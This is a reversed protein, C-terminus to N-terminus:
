FLHGELKEGNLLRRAEDLRRRWEKREYQDGSTSQLHSCVQQFSAALSYILQKEEENLALRPEDQAHSEALISFMKSIQLGSALDGAPSPGRSPTRTAQTPSAHFSVHSGLTPSGSAKGLNMASDSRSSTQGNLTGYRPTVSPLTPLIHQSFQDMQENEEEEDSFDEAATAFSAMTSVSDMSSNRQHYSARKASTDGDATLFPRTTAVSDASSSSSRRSASSYTGMASHLFFNEYDFADLRDEHREAVPMEYVADEYVSNGAAEYEDGYSSVFDSDDEVEEECTDEADAEPEVLQSDHADDYRNTPYDPSLPSKLPESTPPTPLFGKTQDPSVQVPAVQPAVAEIEDDEYLAQRTPSETKTGVGANATVPSVGSKYGETDAYWTEASTFPSPTRLTQMSRRRLNDEKARQKLSSIRGKLDMMQDRLDSAASASRHLVPSDDDDEPLTELANPPSRSGRSHNRLSTDRTDNKQDWNNAKPERMVEVSRSERIPFRGQGYGEPSWPGSATGMASTARKTSMSRNMRTLSFGQASTESLGRSHSPSLPSSYFPRIRPAIPGIGAYLRRDRDRLASLPIPLEPAGKPTHNFSPSIVLSQRAGRLNGEMVNLRKKANALIIEARRSLASSTYEDDDADSQGDMWQDNDADGDGRVDVPLDNQEEDDELAVGSDDFDTGLEAFGPGSFGPWHMNELDDSHVSSSTNSYRRQQKQQQQQQQQQSSWDNSLHNSPADQFTPSSALNDHRPAPTKPPPGSDGMTRLTSRSSQASLPPSTVSARWAQPAPSALKITQASPNSHSYLLSPPSPPREIYPNPSYSRLSNRPLLLDFDSLTPSRPSPLEVSAPPQSATAM